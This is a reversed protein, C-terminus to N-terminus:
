PGSNELENQGLASRVAARFAAATFPKGIFSTSQGQVGERALIENAYGSMFLVPLRPSRLRFQRAVETGSAGPMVVDTVLLDLSGVLEHIRALAESGSDLELVRYGERALAKVTLRRVMVDDEVVLVTHGASQEPPPPEVPRAPLESPPGYASPLLVTFVSGRGKQSQVQVTGGSQQVIGYVTALGLGTGRGREKTTFFPEFIRALTADDMGLGTDEVRLCGYKGPALPSGLPPSSFAVCATALTLTGGDPMADGANIALNVLVQEFQVSDVTVWGANPDLQQVVHVRAPLLRQLLDATAAVSANLSLVRPQLVQRRSFALLQRTLGVARATADLVGEVDRRAAHGPALQELALEAGGGMVTLLNNFDHAVGGALQGLADLRQSHELQAQLAREDSVDRFVLVVGNMQGADDLIPAGSDAIPKRSGDRAVLVASDPLGAVAGSELVKRIPNELHEGTHESVIDLIRDVKAGVAESARFGTLTEAVPNLFTVTEALDVTLVADGISSLTTSFWRERRQLAQTRRQELVRQHHQVMLAAPLVFINLCLPLVTEGMGGPSSVLLLAQGLVIAAACAFLARRPALLATAQLSVVSLFMLLEARETAAGLTAVAGAAVFMGAGWAHRGRRNLVFCAFLVPLLGVAIWFTRTATPEHPNLWYPIAVLGISIVLPLFVLLLLALFQSRERAEGDVREPVWTLYSWFRGALSRTWVRRNDPSVRQWPL